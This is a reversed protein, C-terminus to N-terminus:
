TKDTKTPETKVPTQTQAPTQTATKGTKVPTTKNECGVIAGLGVLVFVAVLKRM